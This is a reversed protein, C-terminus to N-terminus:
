QPSCDYHKNNIINILLDLQFENVTGVRCFPLPERVRSTEDIRQHRLDDVGLRRKRWRIIRFRLARPTRKRIQASRRPRFASASFLQTQAKQAGARAYDLAM